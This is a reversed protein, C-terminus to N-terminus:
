LFMSIIGRVFMYCRGHIKSLIGFHNWKENKWVYDLCSRILLTNKHECKLVCMVFSHSLLELKNVVKWFICLVFLESEVM